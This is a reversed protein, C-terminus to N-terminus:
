YVSSEGWRYTSRFIAAVRGTVLQSHSRDILRCHPPQVIVHPAVHSLTPEERARICILDLPPLSNIRLGEGEPHHSSSLCSRADIKRAQLQFFDATM